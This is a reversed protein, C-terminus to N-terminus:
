NTAQISLTISFDCTTPDVGFYQYNFSTVGLQCRQLCLSIENMRKRAVGLREATKYPRRHRPCLHVTRGVSNLFCLFNFSGLVVFFMLFSFNTVRLSHCCAITRM